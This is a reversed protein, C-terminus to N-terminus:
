VLLSSVSWALALAAGAPLLCAFTPSVFPAVALAVLAACWTGVYVPWNYLFIRVAGSRQTV